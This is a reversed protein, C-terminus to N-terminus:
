RRTCCDSTSSGRVGHAIAYSNIM